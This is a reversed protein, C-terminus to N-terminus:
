ILLQDLGLSFLKSCDVFSLPTPSKFFLKIDPVSICLKSNTWSPKPRSKAWHKRVINGKPITFNM